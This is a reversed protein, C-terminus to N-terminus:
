AVPQLQESREQISRIVGRLLAIRKPLTASMWAIRESRSRIATADRWIASGAVFGSCGASTAIRLNKVFQDFPVGGSLLAWPVDGSADSIGQCLDLFHKDPYPLKLLAPSYQRLTYVASTIDFLSKVPTKLTMELVFAIDMDGLMGSTFRLAEDFTRVADPDELCLSIKVGGVHQIGSLRCIEALRKALLHGEGDHFDELGVILRTLDENTGVAMSFTRPDCVVGCPLSSAEHFVDERFEVARQSPSTSGSLSALRRELSIGHDIALVAIPSDLPSHM